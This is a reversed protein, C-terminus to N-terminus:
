AQVAVGASGIKLGKRTRITNLAKEQLEYPMKEFLQDVVYYNARGETASRLDSTIGFMEAVPLKAKVVLKTEEQQMDLLQGRRNQVLKSIAGMYDVPAEIQLIQLPEYIVPNALLMAERIGDRVAPLVQAPGRHIADEHLKMDTLIVKVKICPERAQPGNRMVDEFADLVMEMVEGIHVIGRTMEILMNGRYVDKVRRSIKSDMGADELKEWLMEEKKKIRADSIESNKMLKHYPEDLPAVKFYFKNHKNPTKGETEPSEKTISERYVVIPPSTQVEVGKETRIRDEIVELHLEGMGSMLHEGTEENIEILITPDEKNVQRLVEVLKPLDSPKKAEIAKTVVPEFIHKIEEFPEIDQVSSITEGSFVGKLGVLGIVNGCPVNDVSERKAGNYVSIQQLRVQKKSMIMYVEQGQSVTGSFLRGAAVEGAHKDVVIKTCVFVVPGNPDCGALAKGIESDMDGHWIKPIRYAQAQKPNPNHRIVMNLVIKHLPAKAAFEDIRKQDGSAYVDIVDRFSIGSAKMYPISLAWKHFASGFTVSGDNVNVKWKEKFDKEALEGILRNVNNIINIFREQMQEPTLKLEKMLRDVKNIFLVPKVREKLAQRLVTETQPMIGEVADCLLITGDIARMARTVDGGFDVHGPTDILNILYEQAEFEHVMSVNAADITIGRLQEDEHFDMVLQKGALEESIMGAGALLNDSFTTNHIIMGEALFNHNEAVTFDYVFGQSSSQIKSVEIFALEGTLLKKLANTEMKQSEMSDKIKQLTLITPTYQLSEYKYYHHSIQNKPVKRIAEMGAKDLSVLDAVKSGEVKSSYNMALDMKKMLRFGIKESFNKMSLGSIYLTDEQLIGICGFRLLLLQLDKLMQRSASTISVARRSKEVTGDCDFYGSLFQATCEMPAKFVLESVRVNHSKKKLPYDFLIHLMQVLTANTILEPTRSDQMKRKAKIGLSSCVKIFHEELEPKGVVFNKGSGDGIFLGALYFFDKFNSPLAVFHSSKGEKKGSRYSIIKINDYLDSISISFEQALSILDSLKYRGKWAGHYFSKPKLETGIKATIAALGASLILSKLNSAYDQNLKAYFNKNALRLLFYQKLNLGNDISISKACVIRDNLKLKGAEKEKFQMNELVIYKHEPTTEIEFGNRTRIKITDGGILKWAYEIPKYEMGGTMKNLSIAALGLEKVDFIVKNSDEFAKKGSNESIRFLEEASLVSGDKLILRSGGSICKGHDIHASTCINRIREPISMLKKVRDVMKEAM